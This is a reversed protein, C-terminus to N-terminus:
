YGFSIRETHNRGGDVASNVACVSAFDLVWIDDSSGAGSFNFIATSLFTQVRSIGHRSIKWFSQDIVGGEM